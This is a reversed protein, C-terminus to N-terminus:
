EQYKKFKMKNTVAKTTDTLFTTLLLCAASPGSVRHNLRSFILQCCIVIDYGIINDVTQWVWSELTRAHIRWAASSLLSVEALFLSFSSSFLFCMTSAAAATVPSTPPGNTSRQQRVSVDVYLLNSPAIAPALRAYSFGPYSRRLDLGTAILRNLSRDESPRVCLLAVVLANCWDSISWCVSLCVSPRCSTVVGQSADTARRTARRTKDTCSV